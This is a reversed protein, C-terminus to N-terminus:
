DIPIDCTEKCETVVDPVVPRFFTNVLASRAMPILYGLNYMYTSRGAGLVNCEHHVTQLDVCEVAEDTMSAFNRIRITGKGEQFAFYNVVSGNTFQERHFPYWQEPQTILGCEERFERVMCGVPSEGSEIKGGIGNYKGAQWVPRLKQILLLHTLQFNFAFGVTYHIPSSM